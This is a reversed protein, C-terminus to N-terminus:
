WDISRFSELSPNEKDNVRESSEPSRDRSRSRSRNRSPSRSHSYILANLEIERHLPVSKRQIKGVVNVSCPFPFVTCPRGSGKNSWSRAQEVTWKWWPSRAETEMTVADFYPNALFPQTTLWLTNKSSFSPTPLQAYNIPLSSKKASPPPYPLWCCYVSYLLVFQM